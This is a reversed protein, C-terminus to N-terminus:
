VEIQEGVWKVFNYVYAKAQRYARDCRDNGEYESNIERVFENLVIVCDRKMAPYDHITRGNSAYVEYRKVATEMISVLKDYLDNYTTEEGM